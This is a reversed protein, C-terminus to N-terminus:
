AFIDVLMSKRGASSAATANDNAHGALSMGTSYRSGPRSQREFGQQQSGDGGSVSAGGLNIGSEAMMEKLRPLAAELAQRVDAHQSVFTATAQDNSISLTVQLPGLDPPNLSLEAVQEQSSVMLLVRQGLADDWGSSGVPAQLDQMTSLPAAAGTDAMAFGREVPQSMLGPLPAPASSPLPAQAGPDAVTKRESENAAGQNMAGFKFDSRPVDDRKGADARGTREMGDAMRNAKGPNGDLNLLIDRKGQKDAVQATRQDQAGQIVQAVQIEAARNEGTSAPSTKGGGADAAGYSRAWPFIDAQATGERSASASGSGADGSESDKGGARTGAARPDAPISVPAHPTAPSHAAGLGALVGALSDASEEDPSELGDRDTGATSSASGARAGHKAPAAERMAIAAEPVADPLGSPDADGRGQMEGALVTSFSSATTQNGGEGRASPSGTSPISPSSSQVPATSASQLMSPNLM